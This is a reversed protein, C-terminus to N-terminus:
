VNYEIKDHLKFEYDVLSTYNTGISPYATMKSYVNNRM